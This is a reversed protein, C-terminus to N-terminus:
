LLKGYSKIWFIFLLPLFLLLNNSTCSNPDSIKVEIVANERSKYPGAGITDRWNSDLTSLEFGYSDLLAEDITMGQSLNNLLIYMKEQGYNDIMYRVVSRSQGYSVLTLKPDGPFTRLQSLPKLQNTGIGWELYLDYSVTKDRNAYEALGENLWLPLNISGDTARGVLIHMIEHTATGIDSRGALVLVVSSEDFAQGATILERDSTKSKSRVAEIMEAYNNYLTLAIKDETKGVIAEMDKILFECEELLTKARSKSYRYYITIYEGEISDWDDFRTDLMIFENNESSFQSGDEFYIIINWTITSGPPIYGNTTNIRFDMVGSVKNDNTEFDMYGYQLTKRDGTKFNVKIDDIKKKTTGTFLFSIKEPFDILHDITEIKFSDNTEANLVFSNQSFFIFFALIFLSFKRM